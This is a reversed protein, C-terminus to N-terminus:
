ARCPLASCPSSWFYFHPPVSNKLHLKELLADLLWVFVLTANMCPIFWLPRNWTMYPTRSNAYLMGALNKWLSTTGGQTDLSILRAMAIFIFISIISWCYYPVMTSVFRKKIYRFLSGKRKFTYGLLIFFFAVNFSYLYKLVPGAKITHGLVIIFIGVAKAADVWPIRRSTQQM